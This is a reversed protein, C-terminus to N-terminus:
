RSRLRIKSNESYKNLDVIKGQAVFTALLGPQPFDIVDPATGADMATKSSAEFTKSGQYQITIGTKTQFDAMTANFKAADQDVFPGTATVTKGKFEGAMARDLFSGTGTPATTAQPATTAPATTPAVTAPAATAPAATPAATAAPSCAAALFAALM